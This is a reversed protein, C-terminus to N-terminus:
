KLSLVKIDYRFILNLVNSHQRIPLSMGDDIVAMECDDHGKTLGPYRPSIWKGEELNNKKWLEHKLARLQHARQFDSM